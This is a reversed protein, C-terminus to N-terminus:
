SNLSAHEPHLISIYRVEEFLPLPIASVQYMAIMIFVHSLLLEKYLVFMDGVCIQIELSFLLTLDKIKSILAVSKWRYVKLRIICDLYDTVEKKSYSDKEVSEGPPNLNAFQVGM